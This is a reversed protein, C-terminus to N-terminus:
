REDQKSLKVAIRAAARANAKLLALNAQMSRGGTLEMIRSLLFPTIEKGRIGAAAQMQLARAIHVEMQDFPIQDAEPVPHAILLGTDIGLGFHADIVRAAESEDKVSQHLRHGSSRSYFAPFEVTGLGVVPVGLTELMELTAGIDLISKVGSAVVAVPTRALEYLDASIDFSERAERHVGGIGGTSFIRIGARHAIWMTAAVTTAGNLGRAVVYSLDRRSVKHVPERKRALREINGETLGVRIRGDIVAITAPLAGEARIVAETELALQMNDPWPLGHSIVTSELAVVPNGADLAQAVPPAIDFFAKM